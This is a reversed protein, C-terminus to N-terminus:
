VHARGIEQRDEESRLPPSLKAFTRYDGVALENLAFYPPASDCTVALGSAKARLMADVGAATSIHAAQHRGGTMAVVSQDRDLMIKETQRPVVALGRLTALAGSNM